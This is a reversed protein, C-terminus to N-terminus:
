LQAATNFNCAKRGTDELTFRTAADIQSPNYGRRHMEEAAFRDCEEESKYFYHGIEHFLIFVLVFSPFRRLSPDCIIIGDPLSISCKNPNPAFVLQVKKPLPFRLRAKTKHGKRTRMPGVLHGGSVEYRGPPLTFTSGAHDFVYFPLGDKTVHVRGHGKFVSPRSLQVEAM